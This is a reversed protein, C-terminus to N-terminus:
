GKGGVRLTAFSYNILPRIDERLPRYAYTVNFSLSEQYVYILRHFLRQGRESSFVIIRATATNSLEIIEQDILAFDPVQDQNVSIVTEAFAEPSMAPLGLEEFSPETVTLQSGSTRSYRMTLPYPPPADAPGTRETWESPYGFSLPLRKGQYKVLPAIPALTPDLDIAKSFDAIARASEGELSYSIGRTKYSKAYTPELEIARTCDAIARDPEGKMGYALGRNYYSAANRPDLEVTKTFDAIAQALDAKEAYVLGRNFYPNPLTPDLEITTTFDAIAEDRDGKDAHANGRHFYAAANNPDLAIANNFEHIAEDYSGETTLSLGRKICDDVTGANPSPSPQTPSPTTASSGCALWASVALLLMAALCLRLCCKPRM